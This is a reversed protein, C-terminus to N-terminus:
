KIYTYIIIYYINYSGYKLQTIIRQLTNFNCYGSDNIKIIQSKINNKLFLINCVSYIICYNKHDHYLIKISTNLLPTVDNKLTKPVNSSDGILDFWGNRQNRINYVKNHINTWVPTDYNLIQNSKIVEKAKYNEYKVFYYHESVLSSSNEDNVKVTKIYKISEIPYYENPNYPM